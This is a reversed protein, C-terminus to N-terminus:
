VCLRRRRIHSVDIMVRLDDEWIGDQGEIQTLDDLKRKKGKSQIYRRFEREIGWNWMRADKRKERKDKIDGRGREGKAPDPDRCSWVGGPAPTLHVNALQSWDELQNKMQGEVIPGYPEFPLDLDQLFVKVFQHVSVLRESANWLFTDKVRHTETELEIRIPVLRELHDAARANDLESFYIHPTKSARKVSLKNAPPPLGLRQGPIEPPESPPGQAPTARSSGGAAQRRPSSARIRLPTGSGNDDDESDDDADSAEEVYRRQNATARGSRRSGFGYDVPAAVSRGFMPDSNDGPPPLPQMLSSVGMRMRSPFTTHLAQGPAIATQPKHPASNSSLPWSPTHSPRAYSEPLPYPKSRPGSRIVSTSAVVDSQAALGDEQPQQSDRPSDAPTDALQVRQSRRPRDMKRQQEPRIVCPHTGPHHYSPLCVRPWSLRSRVLDRTTIGDRSHARLRLPAGRLAVCQGGHLPTDSACLM